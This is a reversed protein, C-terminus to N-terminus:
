PGIVQTVGDGRSRRTQVFGSSWCAGQAVPLLNAALMAKGKAMCKAVDRTFQRM